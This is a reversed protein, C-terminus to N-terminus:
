EYVIQGDYITKSVKANKVENAPISFIDRDWIVIDALMGPELRGKEQEAFEAFASGITYADISSRLSLRQEPVFGGAPKGELTQRTMATHLGPIPDLEVVPWDTGFALRGGADQISKWSWARSAREPGLNAAWVNFINGNPNAHYPQMSAIIGLQGFRPIDERSISEIHELRHRRSVGAAPNQNAAREMADLTMRIGGDGIAHVMLQYDRRELMEVVRNLDEQTYEPQGRISANAYPQLLVATHAEIVGDIYLKVARITLENFRTRLADLKDVDDETMLPHGELALYMRLKLEGRKRLNDLVELEEKGIGAEQVSTVGLRHAERIAARVADSKEARTLKPILTEALAMASEKLMGTPEGSVDRVIMGNKPDKSNRTIGAVALAKSNLWMSHGDYCKMVAPRDEIMADLQERTPLGDPFFGYLWGRGVIVSKKPNAIAFSHIRHGIDELSTADLLNVQQLSEGGAFIHVHSDNFGPTVACSKADIRRTRENSLKEVEVKPGLALIKNARIAIAESFEANPSYVRANFVLLDAVGPLEQAMIHLSSLFSVLVSIFSIKGLKMTTELVDPVM